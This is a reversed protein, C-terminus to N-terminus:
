IYKETPTQVDRYKIEGKVRELSVWYLPSLTTDRLLCGALM